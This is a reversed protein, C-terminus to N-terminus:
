GSQVIHNVEAIPVDEEEAITELDDNVYLVNRGEFNGSPKLGYARAFVKAPKAKLVASQQITKAM